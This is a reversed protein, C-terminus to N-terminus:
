EDIAKPTIPIKSSKAPPGSVFPVKNFKANCLSRNAVTKTINGDNANLTAPL